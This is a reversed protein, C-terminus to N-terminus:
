IYTPEEYGVTIEDAGMEVAVTTFDASIRDPTHM